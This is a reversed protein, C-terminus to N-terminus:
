SIRFSFLQSDQSGLDSAFTQRQLVDMATFFHPRVIKKDFVIAKRTVM